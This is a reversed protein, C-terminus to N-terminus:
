GWSLKSVQIYGRHFFDSFSLHELPREIEIYRERKVKINLLDLISKRGQMRLAVVRHVVGNKYLFEKCLFIHSLNRMKSLIHLSFYSNLVEMLLLPPLSLNGCLKSSPIKFLIHLALYYSYTGM